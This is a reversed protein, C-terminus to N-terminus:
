GSRVCDRESAADCQQGHGLSVIVDPFEGRRRPCGGDAHAAWEVGDDHEVDGLVTIGADESGLNAGDLKFQVALSVSTTRQTPPLPYRDPYRRDQRRSSLRQVTPPTTDPPPGNNVTVSVSSSTTMNGAADRAVATLTHPGNSSTTTNWTVTDRRFRTRAGSTAAM